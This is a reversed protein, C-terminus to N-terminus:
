ANFIQEPNAWDSSDVHAVATGGTGLDWKSITGDSTIFYWAGSQDKFWKENKGLWNQWYDGTSYFGYQQELQHLPNATDFLQDLNSWNSPDVTAVVTGGTGLDWKSITGDPTIFYWAGSQDKFWKENKGLYNQWTGSPDAHFGYQQELNGLVANFIQDPYAWDSSDVHAVVTGTNTDRQWKTITGDSTIFYWDGARDKFWKEDKGLYNRWDGSSDAHFGYQQELQALQAGNNVVTAAPLTSAVVPAAPPVPALPTASLLTRGELSEFQLCVRRPQPRSSRNVHPKKATGFLNTLLRYM